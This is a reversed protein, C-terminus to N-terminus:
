FNIVVKKLKGIIRINTEGGTLVIPPYNPNTSQLILANNQKYVKKLVAEDDILVAAIEGDEVEEQQRILLLDGDYIRAGNMSDGKARLYFYQGGNIWSRPTTEYGEISEYAVRGNGCSIKGVIPLSINETEAPEEGLYTYAGETLQNVTVGLAVAIEKLRDMDIKHEGHEYRQVTKKTIGIKEALVQLSYNRLDRYKKINQGVVIYFTKSDKSG